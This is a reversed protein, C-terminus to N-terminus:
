ACHRPTVAYGGGTVPYEQDALYDDTGNADGCDRCVYTYCMHEGNIRYLYSTAPRFCETDPEETHCEKADCQCKQGAPPNPIKDNIWEELRGALDEPDKKGIYFRKTM